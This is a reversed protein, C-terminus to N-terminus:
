IPGSRDSCKDKIEAESGDGMPQFAPTGLRAREALILWGHLEEDTLASCTTV